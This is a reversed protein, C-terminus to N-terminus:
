GAQPQDHFAYIEGFPVLAHAQARNQINPRFRLQFRTEPIVRRERETAAPAHAKERLTMGVPAQAHAKRKGTM